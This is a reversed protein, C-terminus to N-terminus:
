HHLTKNSKNQRPSKTTKKKRAMTKVNLVGVIITNARTNEVIQKSVKHQFDKLQTACKTKM